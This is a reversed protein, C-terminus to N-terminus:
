DWKHIGKIGKRVWERQGSSTPVKSKFEDLICLEQWEDLQSEISRTFFFWEGRVHDKLFESHILNETAEDGVLVMILKLRYPNGSQVRRLAGKPDHKTHGVKIFQSGQTIFYIM